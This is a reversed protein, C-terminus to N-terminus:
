RERAGGRAQAQWGKLQRAAEARGRGMPMEMPLRRMFGMGELAATAAATMKKDAFEVANACPKAPSRKKGAVIRVSSGNTASSIDSGVKVRSGVCLSPERSNSMPLSRDINIVGLHSKVRLVLQAWIRVGPTLVWVPNWPRVVPVWYWSNMLASCSAM